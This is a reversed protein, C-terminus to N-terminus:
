PPSILNQLHYLLLIGDEDTLAQILKGIKELTFQKLEELKWGLQKVARGIAARTEEDIGKSQKFKRRGLHPPPTRSM